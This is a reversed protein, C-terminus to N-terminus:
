PAGLLRFVAADIVDDRPDRAAADGGVALDGAEGSQGALGAENAVSQRGQGLSAADGPMADDVRLPPDTEAAVPTRHGVNLAV